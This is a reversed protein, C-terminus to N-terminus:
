AVSDVLEIAAKKDPSEVLLPDPIRRGIKHRRANILEHLLLEPFSLEDVVVRSRHLHDEVLQPSPEVVKSRSLLERKLGLAPPRVISCVHSLLIHHCLVVPVHHLIWGAPPVDLSRLSVSGASVLVCLCSRDISSALDDLVGAASLDYDM